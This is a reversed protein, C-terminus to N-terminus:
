EFSIPAAIVDVGCWFFVLDCASTSVIVVVLVEPIRYIFWWRKAREKCWRVLVLVGLMGFSVITTLGHARNQYLAHVLFRAKDTTSQAHSAHELSSLGFM